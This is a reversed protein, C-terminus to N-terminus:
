GNIKKEKICISKESLVIDSQSVVGSIGINAESIIVLIYVNYKRKQTHSHTHTHHTYTCMSNLDCSARASIWFYFQVPSTFISCFEDAYGSSLDSCHSDKVFSASQKQNNKIIGLM